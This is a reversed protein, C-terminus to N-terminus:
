QGEQGLIIKLTKLVIALDLMISRKKAYYIDYQLKIRADKVSDGYKYNIQAWGTLGPKVLHRMNYHPISEQLKSVFKPREPRPGVFSLSGTIINWFQPLEDIRTKRLFRGVRTVREDNNKAWRAGRTEASGDPSLAQMTRFKYIRFIKGSKGVREQSFIVPGRSDLAIAAAVPIFFFIFFVIGVFGVLLDMMRKGFRYVELNIDELNRIFWADDLMEPSVKNLLREYFEELDITTTGTALLPFVSQKSVRQKTNVVVLSAIGRGVTNLVQEIGKRTNDFVGLNKYKLEPNDKFFAILEKVQDGGGLFLVNTEVRNRVARYALTRWLWLVAGFITTFIVLNLRPQILGPPFLYFATISAVFSSFIAIGMARLADISPRFFRTEYLYSAYLAILWLPFLFSFPRFHIEWQVEWGEGYRLAVLLFLSLYLAGWDGILVIVKRLFTRNM